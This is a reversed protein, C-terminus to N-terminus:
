GKRSLREQRGMPNRLYAGGPLGELEHLRGVINMLISRESGQSVEKCTPTPILVVDSLKEQPNVLTKNWSMFKGKVIRGLFFPKFRHSPPVSTRQGDM